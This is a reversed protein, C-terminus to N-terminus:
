AKRIKKYTSWGDTGVSKLVVKRDANEFVLFYQTGEENSVEFLESIWYQQYAASKLSTQLKVPLQTLTLNRTLAVMTGNPEYFATVYSGNLEFHAKHM